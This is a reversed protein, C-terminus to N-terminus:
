TGSLSTTFLLYLIIALAVMFVALATRHRGHWDKGRAM